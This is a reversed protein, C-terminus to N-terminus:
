SCQIQRSLLEHSARMQDEVSFKTNRNYSETNKLMTFSQVEDTLLLLQSPPLACTFMLKCRKRVDAFM